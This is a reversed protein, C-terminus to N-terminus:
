ALPTELLSKPDIEKWIRGLIQGGYVKRRGLRTSSPLYSVIGIVIIRILPLVEMFGELLSLYRTCRIEKQLLGGTLSFGALEKRAGAPKSRRWVLM